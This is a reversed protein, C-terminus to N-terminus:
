EVALYSLRNVFTPVPVDDSSFVCRSISGGNGMVNGTSDNVFLRPLADVPYAGPVTQPTSWTVGDDQSFIYLFNSGTTYSVMLTDNPGVVLSIEVSNLNASVILAPASWAISDSSRVMSIGNPGTSRYVIIFDGSVGSRLVRPGLNSTTANFINRVTWSIGNDASFMFDMTTGSSTCVLYIDYVGAVANTTRLDIGSPFTGATTAQTVLNFSTGNNDSYSFQLLTSVSSAGYAVCIRGSATEAGPSIQTVFALPNISTAGSWTTGDDLSRRYLFQVNRYFIGLSGSYAALRGAFVAGAGIVVSVNDFSLGQDYVRTFYMSSDSNNNYGAIVTGAASLVFSNYTMTTKGGTGQGTITSSVGADLFGM